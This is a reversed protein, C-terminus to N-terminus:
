HDRTTPHRPVALPCQTITQLLTEPRRLRMLSQFRQLSQNWSRQLQRTRPSKSASCKTEQSHRTMKKKKSTTMTLTLSMNKKMLQSQNLSQSRQRSVGNSNKEVEEKHLVEPHLRTKEDRNQKTDSINSCNGDDSKRWDVM